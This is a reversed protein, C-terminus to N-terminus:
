DMKNIEDWALNHPDICVTYRLSGKLQVNLMEYAEEHQCHPTFGNRWSWYQKTMADHLFKTKCHVILCCDGLNVGDKYLRKSTQSLARVLGYVGLKTISARNRFPSGEICNDPSCSAYYIGVTQKDENGLIWVNIKSKDESPLPSPRYTPLNQVFSEADEHKTFKKFIPNKYGKIQKM